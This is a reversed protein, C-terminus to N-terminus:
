VGYSLSKVEKYVQLTWIGGDLMPMGGVYYTVGDVVLKDGQKCTAVQDQRVSVTMGPVVVGPLSTSQYMTSDLIIDVATGNYTAQMAFEDGNFFVDMDIDLQTKFTM